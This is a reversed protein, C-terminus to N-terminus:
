DTLFRFTGCTEQDDYTVAAAGMGLTVPVKNFLKGEGLRVGEVPDRKHEGQLYLTTGSPLDGCDDALTLSLLMFPYLPEKFLGWIWLSDKPDDPDESLKWRGPQRGLQLKGEPLSSEITVFGQPPEYGQEEEFRINATITEEAADGKPTPV